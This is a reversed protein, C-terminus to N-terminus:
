RGEKPNSVGLANSNGPTAFVNSPLDLPPITERWIKAEDSKGWAEYLRVISRAAEIRYIKSYAPITRLRASMGEYGQLLLPEAEALRNQGLLADGLLSTAWFRSWHQPALTEATAISERLLPEAEAYRRQRMLNRALGALDAVIAGNPPKPKRRSAVIKRRLQEADILRGRAEYALALASMSALTSLHDPGLTEARQKVLPELVEIAESYRSTLVFAMALASRSVLTNPHTPGFKKECLALTQRHLPIARSARGSDAYAAALNNRTALVQWNDAPLTATRHRLLQEHLTIAEAFRGLRHYDTALSNRATQTEPHDPGLKAERRKLNLDHITMAETVRGAGSYLNALHDRYSLTDPHDPGPSTEALRVTEEQMKIADVTRSVDAYVGALSNRTQLSHTSGIGLKSEAVERNTELLELAKKTQGAAQHALGLQERSTIVVGIDTEPHTEALRLTEAFFAIQEAERNAGAFSSAVVNRANLTRSHSPGYVREYIEKSRTAADLARDYLGLALYTTALEVFLRARTAESGEFRAALGEAARDLLDAVKVERGDISPDPSRITGSLFKGLAEAQKLSEESRDLAAKTEAQANRTDILAKSTAVNATRLDNGRTIALREADRARIMLVVSVVTAVVLVSVFALAASVAVAHKRLLKFTRYRLGPPGAEVPDGALFREVDAAFGGPSDYRRARDKELSKMVVWDLDGRITKILRRPEVSRTAAISALRDGSDDLRTSPKPPDEEQIRRLIEAYAARRLRDAQLPTTGTLLEYLLVGLSFVDSRTDVDTGGGCAQEPSMYELTGVVAGLRTLLEQDSPPREIAKAVGFDIVKPVPVGDVRSVLVNSPKIDRHIIGKHHAHQVARCVSVFLRGREDTSLRQSDCFGTIPEGEVLEMAFFPRGEPTVGADFIRAINPHDMIALAQREAEFRALVASSDMGPKVVKVAVRRRVPKEQEALYVIGMGGEGIERILRYPGIWRDETALAPPKPEGGLRLIALVDDDRRELGALRETCEACSELHGAVRDIEDNTLRGQHFSLLTSESLCDPTM